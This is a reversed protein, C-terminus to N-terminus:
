NEKLKKLSRARTKLAGERVMKAVYWKPVLNALWVLFDHAPYGFTRSELGVTNLAYKVYNEPTPIFTSSKWIKALKTVVFYPLVSQIIVGKKSYEANIGQSFFDVFVKTASYLSLFPCPQIGSFSSINVIVGKSRELMRPLVLQTMKCVSMINVNLMNDITKDLDPIELFYEPYSYGAGVNNVLIGIELGELSAKINQYIGVRDGFDATVTKTEVKFKQRMESAVQDLKEQSRSILVMKMGRRALEEAYAKGIGDTAGTVVAWAGLHPGVATPNGLVWLRFTRVVYSLPLYVFYAITLVGVWYFLGAHSSFFSESAEM